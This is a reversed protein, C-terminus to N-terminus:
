VDEVLIVRVVDTLTRGMHKHQEGEPIFIGDGPSFVIAGGDFEIELQGELVYGIHGATCWDTEAFEKTFEVLRLQKGGHRYLKLRVGPAPAVWPMSEFAVQYQEVDVTREM